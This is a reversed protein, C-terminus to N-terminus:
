AKLGDKLQVWLVNLLMMWSAWSSGNSMRFRRRSLPACPMLLCYRRVAVNFSTSSVRILFVFFLKTVANKWCTCCTVLVNNSFFCSFKLESQDLLVYKYQVSVVLLLGLLKEKSVMDIKTTNGKRENWLACICLVLPQSGLPLNEEINIVRPSEGLAFVLCWFM